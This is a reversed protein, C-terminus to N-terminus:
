ELRFRETGSRLPRKRDEQRRRRFATVALLLAEPGPRRCPGLFSVSGSAWQGVTEEGGFIEEFTWRLARRRLVVFGRRMEVLAEDAKAM